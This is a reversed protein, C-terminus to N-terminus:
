TGDKRIALPRTASPQTPDWTLLWLCPHGSRSLDCCAIQLYGRYIYRQHLTISGNTTVKKTARRGHTVYSCEILTSGDASTFRVPRNEANYEVSWIGTATKVLTQNGAADFTPAFDGVATYQNLENAAYATVEEGETATNRNGINDYDYGHTTGNVTASTLESRSNHVFGDIVVSEATIASTPVFKYRM